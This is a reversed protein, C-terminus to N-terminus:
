LAKLHTLTKKKKLCLDAYSIRLLSQLASTNEESRNGRFTLAGPCEVVLQRNWLNARQCDRRIAHARDIHHADGVPRAVLRHRNEAVEIKCRSFCSFQKSGGPDLIQSANWSGGVPARPDFPAFADLEVADRRVAGDRWNDNRGRGGKIAM